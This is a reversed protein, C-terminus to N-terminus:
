SKLAQAVTRELVSKKMLMYARRTRARSAGDLKNYGFHEMIQEILEPKTM